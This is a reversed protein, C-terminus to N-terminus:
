EDDDIPFYKRKLTEIKSTEQVEDESESETLDEQVTTEDENMQSEELNNNEDVQKNFEKKNPLDLYDEAIVKSGLMENNIEVNSGNRNLLEYISSNNLSFSKTENVNHGIENSQYSASKYGNKTNISTNHLMSESPMSSLYIQGDHNILKLDLSEGSKLSIDFTKESLVIKINNKESM